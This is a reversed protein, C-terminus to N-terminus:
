NKDLSVKFLIFFRVLGKIYIVNDKNEKFITFEKGPTM